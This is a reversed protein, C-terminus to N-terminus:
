CRTRMGRVRFTKVVAAAQPDRQAYEFYIAGAFTQEFPLALTQKVLGDETLQFGHLGRLCYPKARTDIQVNTTSALLIRLRSQAASRPKIYYRVWEFHPEEKVSWSTPITIMASGAGLRVEAACTPKNSMLLLTFGVAVASLLVRISCGSM